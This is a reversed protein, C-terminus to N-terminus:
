AETWVVSRYMPHLCFNLSATLSRNWIDSALRARYDPKDRVRSSDDNGMKRRGFKTPKKWSSREAQAMFEDVTKVKITKNGSEDFSIAFLPEELRVRELGHKIVSLKGSAKMVVNADIGSL